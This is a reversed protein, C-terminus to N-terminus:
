FALHLIGHRLITVDGIKHELMPWDPSLSLTQIQIKGDVERFLVTDESKTGAVSPNWAYAQNKGTVRNDLKPVGVWERSNYGACGGQHHLKWEGDFGRQAYADQIAKFVENAKTGPEATKALAVAEVYTAAEHRRLLDEPIAAGPTTTMYVLRTTSLIFGHRLACIVLMAKNKVRKNTPLPHRSTDIREDAAVLILMPTIAKEYLAASLMGAIEWETMAPRVKRSVDGIVQGCDAGLKTYLDMEYETFTARLKSLALDLEKDTGDEAVKDSKALAKAKELHPREDYWPDEVVEVEDQLGTLEENLLRHGEIHNTLVAVRTQDVYLAGVGGETGLYIYNRGGNTLWQFNMSYGLVIADLDRETLLARLKAVKARFDV